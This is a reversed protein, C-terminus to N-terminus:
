RCVVTGTIIIKLEHPANLLSIFGETTMTVVFLLFMSATVHKFHELLQAM